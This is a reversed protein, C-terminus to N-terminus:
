SSKRFLEREKSFTMMLIMKQYAYHILHQSMCQLMKQLQTENGGKITSISALKSDSHLYLGVNM